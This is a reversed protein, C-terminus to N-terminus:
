NFVYKSIFYFYDTIINIDYPKIIFCLMLCRPIAVLLLLLPRRPAFRPVQCSRVILSSRYRQAATPTSTPPTPDISICVNKHVCAHEYLAPFPRPRIRIRQVPQRRQTARTLSILIKIAEKQKTRSDTDWEGTLQTLGDTHYM